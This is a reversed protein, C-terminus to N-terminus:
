GDVVMVFHISASSIGDIWLAILQDIVGRGDPGRNIYDGLTVVTDASRPQVADILRRLAISCGHIDGIAIVRNAM